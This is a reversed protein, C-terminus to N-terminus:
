DIQKKFRLSALSIAGIGWALLAVGDPWLYEIGSGKLYIGRVIHMFYRVPNLYTLKQVFPPMNHIPAFLGSTLIAFINFFFAIFVAQLQTYAITSVFLGVGLTSLLFIVAFLLLLGPNGAMPIRYWLAVVALALSLLIFGLVAFPITKGLMLQWSRIPTVSLQELTGIERERVIGLGTLLTTTMTVLIAVIGPLMYFKSELNPNFWVRVRPNIKLSSRGLAPRASRLEARLYDMGGAIIRQIYGMAVVSTNSDVGDVLIQLEPQRATALDKEFGKPVALILSAKGSELYDKLRNQAQEYGVIRFRKSQIVKEVLMRSTDTRDADRILLPVNKVDFTMVYGLIFLQVMPMLFIIRLMMPDRFVQLFEKKVISKITNM